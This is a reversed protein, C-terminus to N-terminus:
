GVDTIIVIAFVFCRKVIVTVGTTAFVYKIIVVNIFVIQLFWKHVDILSGGLLCICCISELHHEMVQDHSM